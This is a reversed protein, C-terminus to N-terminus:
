SASKGYLRTVIWQETTIGLSVLLVYTEQIIIFFINFNWQEIFSFLCFCVYLDINQSTMINTM